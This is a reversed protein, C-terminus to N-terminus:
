MQVSGPRLPSPSLGGIVHGAGAATRQPAKAVPPGDATVDVLAAATVLVEGYRARRQVEFLDAVATDLRDVWSQVAVVSVPGGPDRAAGIDESLRRLNAVAQDFLPSDFV